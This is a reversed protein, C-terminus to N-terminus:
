CSSFHIYGLPWYYKLFFSLLCTPFKNIQVSVLNPFLCPMYLLITIFWLMDTDWDQRHLELIKEFKMHGLETVAEHSMIYPM